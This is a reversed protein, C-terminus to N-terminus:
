LQRLRQKLELSDRLASTYLAAGKSTLHMLDRFCSDPIAQESSDFWPTAPYTSTLFSRTAKRRHISQPQNAYFSHIPPTALYLQIGKQQCLSVIRDFYETQMTGTFRLDADSPQYRQMAENLKSVGLRVFMGYRLSRASIVESYAHRIVTIMFRPSRLAGLLMDSSNSKAFMRVEAPSWLMWYHPFRLLFHSSEFLWRHDVNSGFSGMGCSLIVTSLQPNMEIFKTLKKYSYFYSDASHAFNVVDPLLSDDLSCEMQSDGLAITTVNQPLKFVESHLILFRTIFMSASIAFMYVLAFLTANRIFKSM